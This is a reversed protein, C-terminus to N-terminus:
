MLDAERIAEMITERDLTRVKKSCGLMLATHLLNDLKRISGNSYNGIVEYVAEELISKTVGCLELRSNIYEKVQAQEIGHFTYHIVIRQYLAEHIKLS